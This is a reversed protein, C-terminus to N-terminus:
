KLKKLLKIRRKLKKIKWIKIKWKKIKIMMKMLTKMTPIMAKSVFIAILIISEKVKEIKDRRRHKVSLVQNKHDRM